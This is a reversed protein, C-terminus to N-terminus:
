GPKRFQVLKESERVDVHVWSVDLEIGKVHPYRDPERLIKSRVESAPYASFVADIALFHNNEDLSHRSTPSYYSSSPTRLGSWNREGGWFYNNITMTGMGFDEKLTDITDILKPSVFRWADEGFEEYIHKPVLEHIKFYKSKMRM